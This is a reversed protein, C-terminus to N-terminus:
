IYLGTTPDENIFGSEGIGFVRLYSGRIKHIKRAVFRHSIKMGTTQNPISQENRSAMKM